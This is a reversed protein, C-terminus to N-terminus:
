FILLFLYSIAKFAKRAYLIKLHLRDHRRRLCEEIAVFDQQNLVSDADVMRARMEFVAEKLQELDKHIINLTINEMSSWARM